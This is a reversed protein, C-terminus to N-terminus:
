TGKLKTHRYLHKPQGPGFHTVVPIAKGNCGDIFACQTSGAAHPYHGVARPAGAAHIVDAM